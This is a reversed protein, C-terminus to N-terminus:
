LETPTRYIAQPILVHILTRESKFICDDFSNKFNPLSEAFKDYATHYFHRLVFDVFHGPALPASVPIRCNEYQGLTLHSKPHNRESFVEKRCDFDFRFPFPVVNQAVVEAYLADQLYLEPENQFSELHPSPLFALRHRELGEESFLYSLQLLAGDPLLVAYAREARLQDYIESYARNKLALSLFEAGTFTIESRKRDINRLISFNQDIALGIQVLHAIFSNIQAQIEAPPAM